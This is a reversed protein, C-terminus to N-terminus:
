FCKFTFKDNAAVQKVLMILGKEGIVQVSVDSPIVNEGPPFKSFGMGTYLKGTTAGIYEVTWHAVIFRGNNIAHVYLTGNVWEGNGENACPSYRSDDYTFDNVWAQAKVNTTLFFCSVVISAILLKFNKM